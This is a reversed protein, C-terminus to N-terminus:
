SRYEPLQLGQMRHLALLTLSLYPPPFTATLSPPWKGFFTLSSALIPRSVSLPQLLPRPPPDTTSAQTMTRTPSLVQFKRFQSLWGLLDPSASACRILNPRDLLHLHFRAWPRQVQGASTSWRSGLIPVEYVTLFVDVVIQTPGDIFRTM